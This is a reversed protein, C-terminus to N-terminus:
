RSANFQLIRTEIINLCLRGRNVLHAPYYAFRGWVAITIRM